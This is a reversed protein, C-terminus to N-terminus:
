AAKELPQATRPIRIVVATGKGVDSTVVISGGHQQVIQRVM